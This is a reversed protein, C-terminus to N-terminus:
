GDEEGLRAREDALRRAARVNLVGIVAFTAACLVFSAALIAWGVAGVERELLSAATDVHVLVVAPVLPLLYWLPARRLLHAQRDLQARRWGLFAVTTADTPPREVNRGKAVLWTAVFGVGIVAALGAARMLPRDATWALRGFIAAALAGAVLEAINRVRVKAELEKGRAVLAALDIPAAPPTSDRWAAALDALPDDPTM